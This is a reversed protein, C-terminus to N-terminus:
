APLTTGNSIVFNRRRDTCYTNGSSDTHIASTTPQNEHFPVPQERMWEGKLAMWHFVGWNLGYIPNTTDTDLERVWSIPSRRWVLKNAVPDLDFGLNENQAKLLQKMSQRVTYTTYYGYDDGTNYTPIEEVLPMFDTFDSARELKTILDDESVNTYADAYNAWRPYTTPNINGVVTYGSPVTGNFGFKTTDSAADTASKVVWYPIGHFNDTDTVAPVRWGRREFFKVGDGFAAIRRTKVLDLIKNASGANMAIERREVAWNWTLHRWPMKGTTLVNTPNVNATYYLGVARASGNTDTILNFQCEDGGDFMMKGKKILRKLFITNQYDSMVDTMKLRGLNKLTAVLLDAIDSAQLTAM